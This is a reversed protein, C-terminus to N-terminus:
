DTSIAIVAITPSGIRADASGLQQCALAVTHDGPSIENIVLTRAFGDNALSSTNDAEVGPKESLGQGVGDLRVECVANANNAEAYFGGTATILLRSPSELNVEETVCNLFLSDQPDCDTAEAGALDVIRSGDLSREDIETGGLTNRKVDKARVARRDKLDQTRVSDNKLERSGIEGAAYVAGTGLALVLAITATVNAYTLHRRIMKVAGRRYRPACRDTYRSLAM